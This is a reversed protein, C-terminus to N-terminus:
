LKKNMKKGSTKIYFINRISEEYIQMMDKWKSSAMNKM